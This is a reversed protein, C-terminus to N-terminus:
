YVPDLVILHKSGLNNRVMMGDIVIDDGHELIIVIVTSSAFFNTSIGNCSVCAYVSVLVLLGFTYVYIVQKM